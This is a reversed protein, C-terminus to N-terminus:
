WDICHKTCLLINNGIFHKLIFLDFIIMDYRQKVVTAITPTAVRCVTIEELDYPFPNKKEQSEEKYQKKWQELRLM